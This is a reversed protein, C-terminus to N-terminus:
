FVKLLSLHQIELLFLRFSSKFCTVDEEFFIIISM